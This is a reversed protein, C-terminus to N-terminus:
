ERIVAIRAASEAMTPCRARCNIAGTRDSGTKVFFATKGDELAIPSEGLFDGAGDVSITVISNTRPVVQGFADVANIVVRTMDGGQVLVTDDPTMTLRVPAGPTRRVSVAVASDGIYGIAKLEGPKFTVANWVFLPHPLSRFRKPFRLGQSRNNVFLEVKECNSAVYVKNPKLPKQWYHAIYVMPGYLVPDAQCRYLWAAHKPFRFIDSVGHYCVGRDAYRYPSNYDFACWGLIGAVNPNAAASDHAAAHALMQGVLLQENDWSRTTRYHGVCETTLWPMIRPTGAPISYNYTWIDELFERYSGHGLVRVGHTPRTPDLERALRNTKVYLDHFDASQNVRVGFSIISPHNRDRVIMEEVNELVINRWEPRESVFMWGPIEELVLLGIEDCRDLFAPSQPYHSSRVTNCGLEYKIIDADKRQLRDAAARGIFPFTEHRNLGRLKLREGNISFAGDTKSFCVSRIGFKQLHVDRVSDNEVVRTRATYLYPHDPHWLRLGTLPETVFSLVGCSDEPISRNSRATAVVAGASDIVETIVICEKFVRNKNVVRIKVAACQPRMADRTVYVWEVHLPDLVHLFVNRVIGGFIMYDVNLGEPPIDKRQRSDVRVAIVNDGGINLKETIDLSFPTYAGKHGGARHGNVYVEAAKSVAQFEIVFRRGAHKKALAFHKRYWSVFAYEATDFGNHKVTKNAHPLCVAEFSSDDLGVTEGHAIDKPSFLWGANFDIIVRSPNKSVNKETEANLASVIATLM